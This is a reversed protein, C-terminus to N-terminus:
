SPAAANLRALTGEEFRKRVDLWIDIHEELYRASVGGFMSVTLDLSIQGQGGFFSARGLLHDMHYANIADLIQETSGKASYPAMFTIIACRATQADCNEGLITFRKAGVYELGWSGGSMNIPRTAIGRAELLKAFGPGDMETFVKKRAAQAPLAFFLIGLLVIVIRLMM